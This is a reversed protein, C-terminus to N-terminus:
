KSYDGLAALGKLTRERELENFYYNTFGPKEVYFKALHEPPKPAPPRMPLQPRPGPRQRRKQDPEDKPQDKPQEPNPRDPRPRDPRPEPPEPRPPRNLTLESQRHLGRLRVAIEQKRDERRYVLPLKWGKPYIGLVNKFQNVSRIPRGAFSVIEDGDRLGRRFAESQELIGNVVVSGEDSTAVTAGRAAPDAVWGGRLP